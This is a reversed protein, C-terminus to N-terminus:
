TIVHIFACGSLDCVVVFCPGRANFAPYSLSCVCVWFMYYNDSTCPSLSQVFSGWNEMVRVNGTKNFRLGPPADLLILIQFILRNLIWTTLWCRVCQALILHLGADRKTRFIVQVMCVHGTARVYGQMRWSECRHHFACVARSPEFCWSTKSPVCLFRWLLAAFSRWGVHLVSM